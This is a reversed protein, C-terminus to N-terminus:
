GKGPGDGRDPTAPPWRVCSWHHDDVTLEVVACNGLRVPPDAPERTLILRTVGGHSGGDGAWRHSEHAADGHRAVLITAPEPM